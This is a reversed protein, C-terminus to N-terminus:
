RTFVSAASVRIVPTGIFVSCYECRHKDVFLTELSIHCLFLPGIIVFHIDACLPEADEREADRWKSCEGRVGVWGVAAVPGVPALGGM